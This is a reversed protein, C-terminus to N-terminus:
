QTSKNNGYEDVLKTINGLERIHKKDRAAKGNKETDTQVKEEKKAFITAKYNDGAGMVFTRKKPNLNYEILLVIWKLFPIGNIKLFAIALTLLAPPAVFWIWLTIFYKSALAIYIAYSIGGGAGLIALQKLTLPGVIKDEIQVNQPIKYQM